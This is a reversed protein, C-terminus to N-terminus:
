NILSFVAQNQQYLLLEECHKRKAKKGGPPWSGDQFKGNGAKRKQGKEITREGLFFAATVL